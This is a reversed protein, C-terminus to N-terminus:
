AAHADAIQQAAHQAVYGRGHEWGCACVARWPYREGERRITGPQCLLGAAHATAVDDRTVDCTVVGYETTYSYTVSLLLGDTDRAFTAAAARYADLASAITDSM